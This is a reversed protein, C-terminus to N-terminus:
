DSPSTSANTLSGNLTFAGGTGQNTAFAASDGSFLICPAGLAATAVAPDVPKGGADIFLRRTAQPIDGGGDLLNIGPMIRLDAIDGVTNQANGSFGGVEMTKGNMVSDWGWFEFLFLASEVEADFIVTDNRYIQVLGAQSDICGIFCGWQDPVIGGLPDTDSYTRAAVAQSGDSNCAGFDWAKNNGGPGGTALDLYSLFNSRDSVYIMANNALITAESFKGWFAFSTYANDTAALSAISLWASGDFHVADAHYDGGGGGGDGTGVGATTAPTIGSSFHM